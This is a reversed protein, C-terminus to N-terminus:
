MVTGYIDEPKYIRNLTWNKGVANSLNGIQDYDIPVYYGSPLLNGSFTTKGEFYYYGIGDPKQYQPVLCIAHGTKSNPNDLTGVYANYRWFRFLGCAVLSWDECDGGGAKLFEDPRLATSNNQYTYSRHLMIQFERVETWSLTGDRDTNASIYLAELSNNIIVTTKQFLNSNIKVKM